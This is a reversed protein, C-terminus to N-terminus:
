SVGLARLTEGDVVGTARMKNKSQFRKLAARTNKGMVGDVKVKHGNKVLAEQVAMVKADAMRAKKAMPKAAMPKAAMPKAAMPKAPMSMGPQTQAHSPTTVATTFVLALVGAFAAASARVVNRTYRGM